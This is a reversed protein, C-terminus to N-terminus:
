QEDGNRPDALKYAPPEAIYTDRPFGPWEGTTM